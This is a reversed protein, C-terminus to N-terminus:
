APPKFSESPMSLMREIVLAGAGYLMGDEAFAGLRIRLGEFVSPLLREKLAQAIVEVLYQGALAMKDSLIIVGPNYANVASALGIGLFGAVEGFVRRALPEADAVKKLIEEETKGVAEIANGAKQAEERYRQVLRQTSCYLELCGRNGCECVPGQYDISIHGIEGAMGQSGTYLQGRVLIGAGVGTDAAVFLVDEQSDIGGYWLEALAGCNADHELYVPLLLQRELEGKLDVRDWGPFGSMMAIRGSEAVFPGPMAIGIGLVKKQAARGLLAEIAACISRVTEAPPVGRQFSCTKKELLNGALDFLGAQAYKRNLRVGIIRFSEQNLSIGIARRKGRGSLLGTEAVVGWRILDNVINTITAQKLGTEKSLEVRSCVKKKHILRILLALNNERVTLLNSGEKLYEM